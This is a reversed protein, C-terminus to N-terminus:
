VEAYAPRVLRVGQSYDIWSELHGTHLGQIVSGDLNHWGYLGLKGTQPDRVIDKHTGALLKFPRGGIQKEIRARQDDFAEQSAMTASTGDHRRTLPSVKLDAAKWIADVMGPTPIQYGKEVAIKYGDGIAVPAIYSPAVNWFVGKYFVIPWDTDDPASVALYKNGLTPPEVIDPAQSAEVDQPSSSTTLRKFGYAVLAGLLVGSAVWGYTEMDNDIASRNTPTM